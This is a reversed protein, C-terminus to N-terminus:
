KRRGLKELDQYSIKGIGARFMERVRTEVQVDENILYFVACIYDRVWNNIKTM